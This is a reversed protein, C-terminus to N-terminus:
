GRKTGLQMRAQAFILLRCTTLFITIAVTVNEFEKSFLRPQQLKRIIHLSDFMHMYLARGTQFLANRFESPISGEIQRQQDLGPKPQSLSTLM